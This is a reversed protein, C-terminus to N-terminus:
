PRWKGQFLLELFFRMGVPVKKTICLCLKHHRSNDDNDVEMLGPTTMQVSKSLLLETWLITWTRCTRGTFASLTLGTFLVPILASWHLIKIFTIELRLSRIQNRKGFSSFSSFLLVPFSSCCLFTITPLIQCAKSLEKSVLLKIVFATYVSFFWKRESLALVNKTLFLSLWSLVLNGYGAIKGERNECGMGM